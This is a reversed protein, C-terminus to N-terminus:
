RVGGKRAPVDEAEELEGVAAAGGPKTTAKGAGIIVRRDGIWARAAEKQKALDPPVTHYVFDFIELPDVDSDRYAVAAEFEKNVEADVEVVLASEKGADWHGELELFRRF